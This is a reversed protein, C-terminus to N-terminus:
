ALFEILLRNVEGPSEHQVWHSVRRLHHVDGQDCHALGAEALRSDLFRDGDGWIM